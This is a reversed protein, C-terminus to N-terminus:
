PTPENDAPGDPRQAQIQARVQDIDGQALLVELPWPQDARGTLPLGQVTVRLGLVNRVMFRWVRDCITAVRGAGQTRHLLWDDGSHQPHSHYERVGPICLFPQHTNPHGAVLINQLGTETPVHAGVHPAAPHGSFLDIFTLSPPWLDYNDYHLRICATMVPLPTSGSSLTIPAAMAIDVVLDDRAILFWGRARYCDARAAWEALESDLKARSLAPDVLVPDM